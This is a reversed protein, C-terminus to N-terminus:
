KPFPTILNGMDDFDVYGMLHDGYPLQGNLCMFTTGKYETRWNLHHHAFIWMEPKHAEWCSQLIQHTLSPHFDQLFRDKGSHALLYIIEEPCDHTLVIKPKNEQFKQVCEYGQEWTLEEEAWWSRGPLRDAKDISYAGRIYFFEFNGGKLPFSHTGFDGLAHQARQGYDDHNGLVVCHRTKDINALQQHFDYCGKCPYGLDGIQVSYETDGMLNFYSRGKGRYHLYGHVDGLIRIWVKPNNSKNM